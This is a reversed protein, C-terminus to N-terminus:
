LSRINGKPFLAVLFMMTKREMKRERGVVRVRRIANYVKRRRGRRILELKRRSVSL